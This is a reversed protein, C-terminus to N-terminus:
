LVCLVYLPKYPQMIQFVLPLLSIALTYPIWLRLLKQLVANANYDFYTKFRTLFTNRLIM